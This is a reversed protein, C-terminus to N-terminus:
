LPLTLPKITIKDIACVLSSVCNTANKFKTYDGIMRNEKLVIQITFCTLKM